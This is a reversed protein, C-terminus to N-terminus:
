FIYLDIKLVYTNLIYISLSTQTEIFIDANKYSLKADLRKISESGCKYVLNRKSHM